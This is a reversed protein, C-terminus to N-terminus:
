MSQALYTSFSAGVSKISYLVRVIIVSKGADDGFESGLGTWKKERNSATM